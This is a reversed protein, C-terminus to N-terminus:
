RFKPGAVWVVLSRRVGSTVPTVRHVVWSPFLYVLGKKKKAKMVESSYFFELDGGEYESPDSLQVVMSLKRPSVNLMGKDIHWSYHGNEAGNYVTYQMDEVFGSLDFDYFQGNIQRAIYALTDYLWESRGDLKIWSTKSKRIHSMDDGDKQGAIISDNLSLNEGIRIIDDIQSDTFGNEWTTTIEERTALDPSPAFNYISM